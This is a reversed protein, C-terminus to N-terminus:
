CSQILRAVNSKLIAESTPRIGYPEELKKGGAHTVVALQPHIAKIHRSTLPHHTQPILFPFHPHHHATDKFMKDLIRQMNDGIAYGNPRIVMCGKVDSYDALKAKLIVDVYWESFGQDRRALKEAMRRKRQNSFSLHGVVASAPFCDRSARCFGIWTTHISIATKPMSSREMRPSVTAAASVAVARIRTGPTANAHPSARERALWKRSRSSVAIESGSTSGGVATPTSSKASREGWPRRALTRFRRPMWSTKVQFATTIAAAVIDKGNKTRQARGAESSPFGRRSTTARVSPFVRSCTKQPTASGNAQRPTRAPVSSAKELASPSNPAVIRIAPFM